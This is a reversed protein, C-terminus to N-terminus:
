MILIDRFIRMIMSIGIISNRVLRLILSKCYRWWRRRGKGLNGGMRRIKM